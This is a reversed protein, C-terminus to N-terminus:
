PPGEASASAEWVAVLDGSQVVHERYHDTLWGVIDEPSTPYPDQGEGYVVAAKRSWDGDKLHGVSTLVAAHLREMDYLARPRSKATLGARASKGAADAEGASDKPGVPKFGGAVIADLIRTYHTLVWNVHVQLGGLAYDDGDKLFALAADPVKAFAADWEARAADFDALAPDLEL